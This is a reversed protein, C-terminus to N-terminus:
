SKKVSIVQKETEFINNGRCFLFDAAALNSIFGPFNQEYTPHHYDQFVVRIGRKTFPQMNLYERGGSGSLYVNAGVAECIKALDESADTKEYHESKLGLESALVIKPRKIAFSDALFHIVKMNLTLLDDDSNDFIEAFKSYYKEFYPTKQYNVKLEHLIQEHWKRGKQMAEKKIKVYKIFDRPDIVPVTLWKFQPNTINEKGNIRIRNRHHFDSDTFLVEDRIVFIDSQAMKDFFGLYPLFNPQHASMVIDSM